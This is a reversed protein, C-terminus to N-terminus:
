KIARQFIPSLKLFTTGSNESNSQRADRQHSEDRDKRGTAIIVGEIWLSPFIVLDYTTVIFRGLFYSITGTLRLLFALKRLSGAGIVGPV